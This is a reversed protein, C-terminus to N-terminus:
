REGFFSSLSRIPAVMASPAAFFLTGRPCGIKDQLVFGSAKISSVVLVGQLGMCIMITSNREQTERKEKAKEEWQSMNGSQYKIGLLAHM